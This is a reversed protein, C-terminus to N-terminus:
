SNSCHPLQVISSLLVDYSGMGSTWEYDNLEPVGVLIVAFTKIRLNMEDRFCEKYPQLLFQAVSTHMVTKSPCSNANIQLLRHDISEIGPAFSASFGGGLLKLRTSSLDESRRISM